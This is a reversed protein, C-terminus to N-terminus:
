SKCTTAIIKMTHTYDLKTNTKVTQIVYTKTNKNLKSPFCSLLNNVM